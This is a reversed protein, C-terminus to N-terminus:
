INQWQDIPEQIVEIDKMKNKIIKLLTSKGVGINGEISIFIKKM